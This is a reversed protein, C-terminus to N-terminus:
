YDKYIIIIPHDYILKGLGVEYSKKSM